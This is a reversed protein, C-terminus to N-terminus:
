PGTEAGGRGWQCVRATVGHGRSGIFVVEAELAVVSISGDKNRARARVGDCRNVTFSSTPGGGGPRTANREGVSRKHPGPPLVTPSRTDTPMRLSGEPELSGSGLGQLGPPGRCECALCNGLPWKDLTGGPPRLAGAPCLSLGWGRSGGSRRGKVEKFRSAGPARPPEQDGM